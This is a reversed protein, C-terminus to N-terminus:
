VCRAESSTAPGATEDSGDASTEGTRTILPDIVPPKDEVMWEDAEGDRQLVQSSVNGAKDMLNLVIRGSTGKEILFSTGTVTKEAGGNVTYSITEIGSEKDEGSVTVQVGEKFFNGFTLQNGFKELSSDGSISTTFPPTGFAPAVNDYHSDRICM